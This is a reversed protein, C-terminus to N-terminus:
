CLPSERETIGSLEWRKAKKVEFSVDDLALFKEGIRSQDSGIRSNPDEKGLLRAWRTQLEERLTTGGIMGLRYEKSVHEVKIAIDDSM